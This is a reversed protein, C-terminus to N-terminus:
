KKCVIHPKSSELVKLVKGRFYRDKINPYVEDGESDKMNQVLIQAEDIQYSCNGLLSVMYRDVGFFYDNAFARNTPFIKFDQYDGEFIQIENLYIGAPYNDYNFKDYSFRVNVITTTGNEFALPEPTTAEPKPDICADGTENLIQPSDCTLKEPIVVPEQKVVPQEVYKIIETTGSNTIANQSNDVRSKSFFYLFLGAFIIAFLTLCIPLIFPQFRELATPENEMEEITEEDDLSDQAYADAAVYVSPADKAKVESLKQELDKLIKHSDEIDKDVELSKSEEGVDLDKFEKIDM